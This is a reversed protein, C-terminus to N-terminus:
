WIGRWRIFQIAGIVAGVVLALVFILLVLCLQIKWKPEASWRHQEYSGDQVRLPSSFRKGDHFRRLLM